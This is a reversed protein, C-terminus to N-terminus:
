GAKAEEGFLAEGVRNLRPLHVKDLSRYDTLGVGKKRNCGACLPQINTIRDSGGLSVPVVHDRTLPGPRGCAVCKRGFLERLCQWEWPTHCGGGGALKARRAHVRCLYKQRHKRYHARRKARHKAPHDRWWRSRREKEREWRAPDQKAAAYAARKEAARKGSRTRGDENVKTCAKCMNQLGDPKARNNYFEARAKVAKCQVCTKTGIPDAV